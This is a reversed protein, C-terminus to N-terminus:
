KSKLFYLPINADETRSIILFYKELLSELHERKPFIQVMDMGIEKWFQFFTIWNQDLFEFESKSMKEEEYSKKLTQILNTYSMQSTKEDHAELSFMLNFVFEPSFFEPITKGPLNARYEEIIDLISKQTWTDPYIGVKTSFYGDPRLLNKLIILIKEFNEINTLMNLSGDGLSIDYSHDEFSMDLWNCEVIEERSRDLSTYDMFEDMAQIAIANYDVATVRCGNKLALMRLEPTVGLLLVQADKRSSITAIHDEYLKLSEPTPRFHASSDKWYGVFQKIQDSESM